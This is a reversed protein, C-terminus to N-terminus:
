ETSALSKGGASSHTSREGEGSVSEGLGGLGPHRVQAGRSHTGACQMWYCQSPEPLGSFYFFLKGM